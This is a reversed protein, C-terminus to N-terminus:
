QSGYLRGLSMETRDPTEQQRRVTKPRGCGRREAVALHTSIPGFEM